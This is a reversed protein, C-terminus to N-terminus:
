SRSTFGNLVRQSSERLRAVDTESVLQLHRPVSDMAAMLNIEYGPQGYLDVVPLNDWDLGAVTQVRFEAVREAYVMLYAEPHFTRLADLQAKPYRWVEPRQTTTKVEISYISNLDSDFAVLDPTSRVKMAAVNPDGKKLAPGWDPMTHEYGSHRVRYGSSELLTVAIAVAISHQLARVPFSPSAKGEDVAEPHTPVALGTAATWCAGCANTQVQHGPFWQRLEFEDLVQSYAYRRDAEDDWRSLPHIIATTRGCIECTPM